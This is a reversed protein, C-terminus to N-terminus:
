ARAQVEELVSAITRHSLSEIMATEAEDYMCTLVGAIHRGVPCELDPTETHLAFPGSDRVALYVDALTMNCAAKSLTAGGAAGQCTSVLDAAKLQGIVRRVTVPNIRIAAAIESSSMSEGALALLTLIHVAVTFRSNASM